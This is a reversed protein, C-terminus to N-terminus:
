LKVEVKMLNINHKMAYMTDFTSFVSGDISYTKMKEKDNEDYDVALMPTFLNYKKRNLLEAPLCEDGLACGKVKIVITSFVDSFYQGAIEMHDMNPCIYMLHPDFMAPNRFVEDVPKGM